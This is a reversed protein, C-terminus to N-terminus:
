QHITLIKYFRTLSIEFFFYRSYKNSEGKFAFRNFANSSIEGLKYFTIMSQLLSDNIGSRSICEIGIRRLDEYRLLRHLQKEWRVPDQKRVGALYGGIFIGNIYNSDSEISSFIVDDFQHDGLKGCEVGFEPLRHGAERVLKAVHEAM